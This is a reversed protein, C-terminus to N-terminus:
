NQGLVSNYTCIGPLMLICTCIQFIYLSVKTEKYNLQIETHQPELDFVQM